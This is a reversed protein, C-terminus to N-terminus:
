WWEQSVLVVVQSVVVMESIGGGGRPCLWWGHVRGGGKASGGDGSCLWYGRFAALSGQPEAVVEGLKPMLGLFSIGPASGDGVM